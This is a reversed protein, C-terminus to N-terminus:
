AVYCIPDDLAQRVYERSPGNLYFELTAFIFGSM